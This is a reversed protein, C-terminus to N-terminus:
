LYFERRYRMFVMWWFVIRVNRDTLQRVLIRSAMGLGGRGGSNGVFPFIRGGVEQVGYRRDM